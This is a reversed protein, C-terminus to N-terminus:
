GGFGLSSEGGSEYSRGDKIACLEALTTAKSKAKGVDVGHARMWVVQEDKTFPKFSILSGCRGPRVVAPHLNKLEENTTILVCIKLGQGVLGDVVNLLRSLGQGTQQKADAALLEGTDEAVLVRWRENNDGVGGEYPPGGEAEPEWSPAQELLVQLMYRASGFFLDPDTIYNLTAWKQWEYALSRLAYTKGTGPLGHWLVLQGDRAPHYKVDVLKQLEAQTTSTYNGRVEDWTPVIINREYSTRDAWFEVPVKREFKKSGATAEKGIGLDEWVKDLWDKTNTAVKWAGLKSKPSKSHLIMCSGMRYLTEIREGDICQPSIKAEALFPSAWNVSEDPYGREEIYRYEQPNRAVLATFLEAPVALTAIEAVSINVDVLKGDM